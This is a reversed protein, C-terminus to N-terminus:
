DPNKPGMARTAAIEKARDALTVLGLLVGVIGYITAGIILCYVGTGIVVLAGLVAVIPIPVFILGIGVLFPGIQRSGRDVILFIGYGILAVVFVMILAWIAKGFPDAPPRRDSM